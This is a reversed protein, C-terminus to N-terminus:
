NDKLINIIISVADAVARRETAMMRAMDIIENETEPMKDCAIVETKFNEELFNSAKIHLTRVTFYRAGFLTDHEVKVIGPLLKKVERILAKSMELQEEKKLEIDEIMSKINKM